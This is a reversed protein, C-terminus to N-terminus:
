QEGQLLAKRKKKKKKKMEYVANNKWHAQKEFYVHRAHRLPDTHM